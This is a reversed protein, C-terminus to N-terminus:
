RAQGHGVCVRVSSISFLCVPAHSVLCRWGVITMASSGAGTFVVFRHKADDLEGPTVKNPDMGAAEIVQKTLEAAEKWHILRDLVWKGRGCLHQVQELPEMANIEECTKYNWMRFPNCFHGVAEEYHFLRTCYRCKIWSTALPLTDDTSGQPLLTLVEDQRKQHASAHVEPIRDLIGALCEQFNEESAGVISESVGPSECVDVTSIFFGRPHHTRQYATVIKDIEQYRSKIAKTREAHVRKERQITM